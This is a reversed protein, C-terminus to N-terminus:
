PPTMWADYRFRSMAHFDAAGEVFTVTRGAAAAVDVIRQRPVYLHHLGDRGATTSGVLRSRERECADRRALDPVDLIAVPARPRAVRLMEQIARDVADLDDFYAFVSHAFVADFSSDACPLDQATAAIFTARPLARKALVLLNTAPDVGTLAADTHELAQLMAGAGCGVELVRRAGQQTLLRSTAVLGLGDALERGRRRWADTDVAGTETDFGDARLLDALTPTTTNAAAAGKRQWVAAWSQENAMVDVDVDSSVKDVANRRRARASELRRVTHAM